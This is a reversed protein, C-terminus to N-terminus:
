SERRFRASCELLHSKRLRAQKDVPLDCFSWFEDIDKFNFPNTLFAHLFPTLFQKMQFALGENGDDKVPRGHSILNRRHMLHLGIQYQEDRNEFFWAARKVLIESKERSHGGIAELLRWGDLFSAELDCQAFAAYHRALTLEASQRWPLKRLRIRVNDAQKQMKSIEAQSRVKETLQDAWRNYWYIDFSLAGTLDHVTMHPALLITNIPKDPENSFLFKGRSSILSFLGFEKSIANEAQEFADHVDIAQVSCVAIPLDHLDNMGPSSKNERKRLQEARDNKARRAFSSNQDVDFSISVDSWRRRGSLLGKGGWIPFVVKFKKRDNNVKSNAIRNCHRIFKEETLDQEAHAAKKVVSRVFADTKGEAEVATRFFSEYEDLVGFGSMSISGDPNLTRVKSLRALMLGINFGKRKRIIMKSIDIWGVRTFKM